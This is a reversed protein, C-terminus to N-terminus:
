NSSGLTKTGILLGRNRSLLRSFKSVIKQAVALVVSGDLPQQDRKAADRILSAIDDGRHVEPIGSLAVIELRM